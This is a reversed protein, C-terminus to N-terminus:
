TEGCKRRHWAYVLLFALCAALMVLTGPEPVIRWLIAHGRGSGDMAFGVVDGQSDIARAVSITFGPPLFQHLDLASAATSSWLLARGNVDTASLFGYGVQQSDSMGFAVTSFFDAPNLDVASAATGNWLLAHTTGGTAPGGGYGVQQSGNTAYAISSTM